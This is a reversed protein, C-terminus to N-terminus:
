NGLHLTLRFTSGTKDSKELILEGKNREALAKAIYLGLGAGGVERKLSNDLRIFKRFLRKEEVKSIGQGSDVVRIVINSAKKSVEVEVSGKKTFKIGNDILKLICEKVEDRDGSIKINSGSM